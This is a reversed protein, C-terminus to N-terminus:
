QAVGMRGLPVALNHPVARAVPASTVHRTPKIFPKAGPKGRCSVWETEARGPRASAVLRPHDILQRVRPM